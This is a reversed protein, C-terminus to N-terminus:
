ICARCFRSAVTVAWDAERVDRLTPVWGRETEWVRRADLFLLAPRFDCYHDWGYEAPDYQAMFVALSLLEPPPQVESPFDERRILRAM